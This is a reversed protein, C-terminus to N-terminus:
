TVLGRFVLSIGCLLRASFDMRASFRTSPLDTKRKSITSLTITVMDARIVLSNYAINRRHQCLVFIKQVLPDLNAKKCFFIVNERGGICFVKPGGICFIDNELGEICFNGKQSGMHLLHPLNKKPLSSPM